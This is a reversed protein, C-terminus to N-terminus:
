FSAHSCYAHNTGNSVLSFNQYHTVVRRAIVTIIVREGEVLPGLVVQEQNNLFDRGGFASFLLANGRVFSGNRVVVQV